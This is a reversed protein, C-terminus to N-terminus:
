KKLLVKNSSQHWNQYIDGNPSMSLDFTRKSARHWENQLEEEPIYKKFSITKEGNPSKVVILKYDGTSYIPLKGVHYGQEELKIIVEDFIRNDIQEIKQDKYDLDHHLTQFLVTNACVYDSFEIYNELADVTDLGGEFCTAALTLDSHKLGLGKIDETKLTEIKFVQNNDDDLVAHRSLNIHYFNSLEVLFDLGCSGNTSVIANVKRSQNLHFGNKRLYRLYKKLLTPEGGGIVLNNLYPLLYKLNNVIKQFDFDCKELFQNRCFFCSANCFRGLELYLNTQTTFCTSDLRTDRFDQWSSVDFKPIIIRPISTYTINDKGTDVFSLGGSIYNM